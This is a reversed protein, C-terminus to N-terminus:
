YDSIIANIKVTKDRVDVYVDHSFWEDIVINGLFM